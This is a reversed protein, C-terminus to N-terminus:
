AASLFGSSAAFLLFCGLFSDLSFLTHFNVTKMRLKLFSINGYLVYLLHHKYLVWYSFM